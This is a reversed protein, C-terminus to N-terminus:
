KSSKTLVIECDLLYFPGLNIVFLSIFHLFSTISVQKDTNIGVGYGAFIATAFELIFKASYMAM